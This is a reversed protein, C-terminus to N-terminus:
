IIGGGDFAPIFSDGVAGGEQIFANKVGIDAAFDIVEDYEADSVRRALEPYGGIDPMPTYQNMISMYIGDGYSEYLYKIVAKSDEAQGPLVLHRVIVGRKMLGDPTFTCRNMCQMVMEDIARKAAEPYDPANSYRKALAPSMYKFDPLWIDIYGDLARIVEASEYGGCNYVIPIGLKGRTLDIAKMIHRVFHTPTVLNINHAGQSALSLFIQALKETSVELGFGERSIRDNQCFVCRLNCNSFFVAGSGRTGSICPEEWFHLAARAATVADRAGCFGTEGELRRAGCKRPCLRCPNVLEENM